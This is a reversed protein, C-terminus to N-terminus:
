GQARDTSDSRARRVALLLWGVTVLYVVGVALPIATFRQGPLLTWLAVVVATRVLAHVMFGRRDYLWGFVPWHLSMGIALGLPVLGPDVSFAPITIGFSLALAAFAPLWVDAIPSDVFLDADLPRSLAIGLPFILGSTALAVICWTRDALVLGAGAM